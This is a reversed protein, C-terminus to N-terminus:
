QIPPKRTQRTRLGSELESLGSQALVSPRPASPRLSPAPLSPSALIKFGEDRTRPSQGPVCQGRPEAEESKFRGNVFPRGGSGGRHWTGAVSVGHSAPVHIFRNVPPLRTGSNIRSLRPTPSKYPNATRPPPFATSLLRPRLPLADGPLARPRSDFSVIM